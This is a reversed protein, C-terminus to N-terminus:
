GSECEGGIHYDNQDLRATSLDNIMTYNTGDWFEILISRVVLCSTVNNYFPPDNGYDYISTERSKFPGVLKLSMINDTGYKDPAPDFVPNYAALKITVYKLDQDSLNTITIRPEVGGASNVLFTVSNIVLPIGLEKVKSIKEALLQASEAREAALLQASEAREANDQKSREAQDFDAKARNLYLETTPDLYGSEVLANIYATPDELFTFQDRGIWGNVGDDGIFYYRNNELKSIQGIKNRQIDGETSTDSSQYLPTYKKTTIRAGGISKLKESAIIGLLRTRNHEIAQIVKSLSDLSAKSKSLRFELQNIEARVATTDQAFASHALFLFTILIKM